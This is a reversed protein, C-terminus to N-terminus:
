NFYEVFGPAVQACLNRTKTLHDSFVVSDNAQIVGGSGFISNVIEVRRGQKVGVKDQLYSEVKKRLHRTCLVKIAEPFAETVAKRLAAEDDSGITLQDKRYTSLIGALHSLSILYTEFTSNGYLFMPGFLIPNEGTDTRLLAKHTFVMTTVFVQGLNFTKDVGLM